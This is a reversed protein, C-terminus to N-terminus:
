QTRIWDFLKVGCLYGSSAAIHKYSSVVSRHTSGYVNKSRRKNLMRKLIIRVYIGLYELYDRGKLSESCFKIYINRMEGM